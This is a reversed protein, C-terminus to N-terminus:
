AVRTVGTPTIQYSRQKNTELFYQVEIALQASVKAIFPLHEGDECTAGDGTVEDPTFHEDWMVLGFDGAASLAGHLCHPSKWSMIPDKAGSIALRAEPNDTCDIVLDSAGLVADANDKTLKHPIAEPVSVGFLGQFMQKIALAKNKGLTMRTHFQASVNHADVRDFDVVKLGVKENRLFLAVHSGLAGVGVITIM